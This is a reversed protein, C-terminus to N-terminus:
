MLGERSVTKTLRSVRFLALSGPPLV